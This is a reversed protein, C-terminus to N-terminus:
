TIKPATLLWTTMKGKGKVDIPGRSEFEFQDKVREFTEPSIQIRGPVGTLEMRSAVNVADGWVDYFFKKMGVVGAVVPGSAIGIRISVDRGEPDHIHRATELMELALQVLAAAHDSRPVPVGSVVMYNDGTTKIKELGHREVLRDFATFVENLFRMLDVPATGSAWATFGAMDAFLISAEEHKDAIVQDAASKLRKAVAAPLINALLSESREYEFEASAEARSVEHVAYFMLAFMVTGTGIVSGIFSGLMAAESLLGGDRPAFIELAVIFALALTSFLVPPAIPDIGLVLVAAAAYGMYNLQIGTDTGLMAGVVFTAPYSVMIFAIPAARPDVRHLLPLAAFIIAGTIQIVVVTRLKIDTFYFVAFTLWVFAVSWCGFNIVRLRRAVKEPYRETGYSLAQLLRM